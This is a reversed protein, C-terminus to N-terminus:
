CVGFGSQHSLKLRRMWKPPVSDVICLKKKLRNSDTFCATTSRKQCLTSFMSSVDASVCGSGISFRTCHPDCQILSLFWVRAKMLKGLAICFFGIFDSLINSSIALSLTHHLCTFFLGHLLHIAEYKPPLAIRFCVFWGDSAVQLSQWCVTGCYNWMLSFSIEPNLPFIDLITVQFIHKWMFTFTLFVPSSLCSTVFVLM